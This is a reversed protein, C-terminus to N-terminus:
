HSLCKTIVCPLNNEQYTGGALVVDEEDYGLMEESMWAEIRAGGYSTNIIGIPINIDSYLSKAFYYGTATFNGVYAKTAPTWACGSPLVDKEEKSITKPIQFQRIMQNNALAIENAGNNANSVTMEM